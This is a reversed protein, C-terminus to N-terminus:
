MQHVKIKKRKRSVKITSEDKQYVNFLVNNLHILLKKSILIKRNGNEIEGKAYHQNKTSLINATLFLKLM